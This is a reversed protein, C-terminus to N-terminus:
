LGYTAPEIGAGAVLKGCVGNPYAQEGLVAVLRGTITIHIGGPHAPDRAVVVSEIMERLAVAGDHDGARVGAAIAAALGELQAEYRALIGPHLAVEQKAAPAGALEITLGQKEALVEKMRAGLVASDGHGKAIGDTLRIVERDIESIRRM